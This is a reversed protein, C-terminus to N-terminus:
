AKAKEDIKTFASLTIGMWGVILLSVNVIPIFGPIILSFYYVAVMLIIVGFTYLPRLLGIVLATKIVQFGKVDYHVLIPIWYIWVIVTAIILLFTIFLLISGILHDIQQFWFVYLGLVVSILSLLYGYLNAIKFYTKFYGWFMKFTGEHTKLLFWQRSVAFFAFLAPFFGLVILGMLSFVIFILQLFVLKVFWDAADYVNKSLQNLMSKEGVGILKM